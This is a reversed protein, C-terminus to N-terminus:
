GGTVIVLQPVNSSKRSSLSIGTNDRAIVVFDWTGNGTVYHSVDMVVWAGAEFPGSSQIVSGLAPAKSYTLNGESWSHDTVGAVSLGTTSDSNAHLFLRASTISGSVRSVNFRLYARMTPSQSIRLTTTQGYNSNPASQNIYTDASPGFVRTQSGGNALSQNLLLINALLGVLLLSTLMMILHTNRM